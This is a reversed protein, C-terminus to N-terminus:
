TLVCQEKNPSSWETPTWTLAHHLAWCFGLQQENPVCKKWRALSCVAEPHSHDCSSRLCVSAWSFYSVSADCLCRSVRVHETTWLWSPFVRPHLYSFSITKCHLQWTLLSRTLMKWHETHRKRGPFYTPHAFIILLVRFSCPVSPQEVVKALQFAEFIPHITM